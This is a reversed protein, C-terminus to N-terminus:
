LLGWPDSPSGLLAALRRLDPRLVDVLRDHLEDTVVLEEAEIRRTLWRSGARQAAVLRGPVAHPVPHMRRVYAQWGARPARKDASVHHERDLGGPLAAPDAGVFALVRAVTAARDARLDEATLLLVDDLDVRPLWQELQFAYCTPLLYRTEHLLAETIPRREVGRSLGHQYASRMREVPHRMLYVLKPRPVAGLLLDPVGTFFPFMTYSTSSEGRAVTNPGSDFLREYWDFGNRWAREAIFFDPEKPTSMAVQPHGALYSHLATTGAKQAGLIFFTPLM